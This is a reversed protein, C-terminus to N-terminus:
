VASYDTIGLNGVKVGENNLIMGLYGDAGELVEIDVKDGEVPLTQPETWKKTKKEYASYWEGLFMLRSAPDLHVQGAEVSNFRIVNQFVGKRLDYVGVVKEGYKILLWYGNKAFLMQSLKGLGDEPPSITLLKKEQVLEFIDVVSNEHGLAMLIGDNHIVADTIVSESIKASKYIVKKGDFITYRDSYAQISIPLSPHVATAKIQEKSKIYDSKKGDKCSIALVKTKTTLLLKTDDSNKDHIWNLGVIQSRRDVKFNTVLTLDNTKSDIEFIEGSNDKEYVIAIKFESKSYVKYEGHDVSATEDFSLKFNERLSFPLKHKHSKHRSFLVLQEKTLLDVYQQTLSISKDGVMKEVPEKPEKPQNPEKPEESEEDVEGIDGTGIKMALAQLANRAEDREKVARTAVKVAADQRYLSLSLEKKLEVIQKRLEFIELSLSDWENQFMALMSPISDQNSKRTLVISSNISDDISVLDDETMPEENIPDKQNQSIYQSILKRDFIRRSKLSLVPNSTPEGSISCIMDQPIPHYVSRVM